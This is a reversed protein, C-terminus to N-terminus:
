RGLSIQLGMRLTIGHSNHELPFRRFAGTGPSHVPPRTHARVETFLSVRKSARKSLRLGIMAYPARDTTRFSIGPGSMTYISHRAGIGAGAHLAWDDGGAIPTWISGLISTTKITTPHSGATGTATFDSNMREFVELEIDFPRNGIKFVERFGFSIAYDRSQAHAILARRGPIAPGNWVDFKHDEFSNGFSLSLYASAAATHSSLMFAALLAFLYRM